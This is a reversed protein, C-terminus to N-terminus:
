RVAYFLKDRNGAMRLMQMMQGKHHAEHERMQGLLVWLPVENTRISVLRDLDGGLNGIREAQEATKTALYARIEAPTAPMPDPRTKSEGDAVALYFDGSGALHLATAGFSLADDWPKMEFHEDPMLDAFQVTIKRHRLFLETMQAATM